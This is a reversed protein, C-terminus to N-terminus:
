KNSISIQGTNQVSIIKVKEKEGTENNSVTIDVKSINTNCSPGPTAKYCFDARPSPRTFVIDISAGSNVPLESSDSAYAKIEKIKDVSLIEFLEICETTSSGCDGNLRDYWKNDSSLTSFMVFSKSSGSVKDVIEQNEESSFHMGYSKMFSIQDTNDKVGRAGIAFSQAKRISLAIDDTLNQLSVSSNFNSYNFIVVSTIIMFISIVVLLEVLTLGKSYELHIKSIENKISRDM